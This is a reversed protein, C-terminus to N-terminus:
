AGKCDRLILPKSRSASVSQGLDETEATGSAGAILVEVFVGSDVEGSPTDTTSLAESFVVIENAFIVAGTSASFGSGGVSNMINMPSKM